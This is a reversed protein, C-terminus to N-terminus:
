ATYVLFKGGDRGQPLLITQTLAPPPLEKHPIDPQHDDDQSELRLGADPNVGGEHQGLGIGVSRTVVRRGGWHDFGALLLDIILM